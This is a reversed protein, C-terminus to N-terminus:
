ILGIAHSENAHCFSQRSFLFCRQLLVMKNPPPSLLILCIAFQDSLFFGVAKEESKLDGLDAFFNNGPLMEALFTKKQWFRSQNDGNSRLRGFCSTLQPAQPM